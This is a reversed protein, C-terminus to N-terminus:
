CRLFSFATSVTSFRCFWLLEFSGFIVQIGRLFVIAARDHAAVELVLLELFAHVFLSVRLGIHFFKVSFRQFPLIVYSSMSFPTVASVLVLDYLWDLLLSVTFVLHWGPCLCITRHCIQFISLGYELDRHPVTTMKSVTVELLIKKTPNNRMTAHRCAGYSVGDSKVACTSFSICFVLMPRSTNHLFDTLIDIKKFELKSGGLPSHCESHRTYVSVWQWVCKNLSTTRLCVNLASRKSEASKHNSTPDYFGNWWTM